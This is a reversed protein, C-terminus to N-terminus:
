GVTDQYGATAAASAAAKSLDYPANASLAAAIDPTCASVSGALAEAATTRIAASATSFATLLMNASPATKLSNAGVSGVTSFSRDEVASIAPGAENRVGVEITWATAAAATAVVTAATTTAATGPL